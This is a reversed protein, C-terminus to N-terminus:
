KIVETLKYKINGKIDKIGATYIVEGTEYNVIYEATGSLMEPDFGLEALTTKDWKYWVNDVKADEENESASVGYSYLTFVSVQTGPLTIDESFEYEEYIAEAKGKILYMNSVIAKSKTDIILFDSTTITVGALILIVIITVVLSSLTVAHNNKLM